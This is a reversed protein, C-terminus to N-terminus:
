RAMTPAGVLWKVARPFEARWAAENHGAMPAIRLEMAMDPNRQGLYRSMRLADADMSGENGGCYLYFRTGAPLAQLGAEDYMRMNAWYSPSFVGARGFLQPYRLLAAHTILGGMSSGMMGTHDRDPLTRFRKDVMPKVVEAIFRLYAEGEPKQAPGAAFLSMEATRHEGGNDIGVVILELGETRALENLTEDVGWEGAFSTAADFLNQGDHMYLVPYRKAPSKEYSPPLYIRLARERNLGPMPLPASLSVNAAATSPKSADALAPSLASLLLASCLLHRLINM